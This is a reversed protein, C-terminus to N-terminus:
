VVYLGGDRREVLGRALLEQVAAEVKASGAGHGEGRLAARVKRQSLGPDQRLAALVLDQPRSLDTTAGGTEPLPSCWDLVLSTTDLEPVPIEEVGIRVPAADRADKMRECTLRAGAGSSALRLAAFTSWRLAESGRITAGDKTTHHLVLVACDLERKLREMGDVFMGLERPDNESGGVFNRALTDVVVLVPDVGVHGIAAVLADVDTSDQAAVAVPLFKLHPLAEAGNATKWAAVRARMGSVGEAAIYVVDQGDRALEASWHLALFSKYSGGPGYLVTLERSALYGPVLWEVPSFADLEEASYLRFRELHEPLPEQEVPKGKTPPATALGSSVGRLDYEYRTM